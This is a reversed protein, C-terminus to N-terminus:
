LEAKSNFLSSNNSYLSVMKSTIPMTHAINKIESIVNKNKTSQLKRDTTNFEHSKHKIPKNFLNNSNTKSSKSSSKSM